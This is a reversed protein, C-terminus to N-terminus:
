PFILVWAQFNDTDAKLYINQDDWPPNATGPQNEAANKSSPNLIGDAVGSIKAAKSPMAVVAFSPVARLGHPVAKSKNADGAHFIVQRWEGRFNGAKQGDVPTGLDLSRLGDQQSRALREEVVNGGVHVKPPIM